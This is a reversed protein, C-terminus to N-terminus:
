VYLVHSTERSKTIVTVTFGMEPRKPLDPLRCSRDSRVTSIILLDYTNLNGEPRCLTLWQAVPKLTSHSCRHSPAQHVMGFTALPPTILSAPLHVPAEPSTSNGSAVSMM